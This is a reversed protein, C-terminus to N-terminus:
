LDGWTSYSVSNPNKIVNWVYDSSNREQMKPLVGDHDSAALGAGTGAESAGYASAYPQPFSKKSFLNMGGTYVVDRHACPAQQLINGLDYKSQLPLTGTMWM